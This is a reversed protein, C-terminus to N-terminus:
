ECVPRNGFPAKVATTVLVKLQKFLDMMATHVDCMDVAFDITPNPELIKPDSINLVVYTNLGFAGISLPLYANFSGGYDLISSLNDHDGSFIDLIDIPELTRIFFNQSFSGGTMQFSIETGFPIAIPIEASIATLGFSVISDFRNILVSVSIDDYNSRGIIDDVPIHAIISLDVIVSGQLVINDLEALSDIFQTNIPLVLVLTEVVNRLAALSHLALCISRTLFSSEFCIEVRLKCV